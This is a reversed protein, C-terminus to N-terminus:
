GQEALQRDRLRQADARRMMWGACVVGIGVAVIILIALANM